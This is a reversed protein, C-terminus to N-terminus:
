ETSNMGAVASTVVSTLSCESPLSLLTQCLQALRLQQDHILEAVQRELRRRRLKHELQDATAVLTAADQDRRVEQFVPCCSQRPEM